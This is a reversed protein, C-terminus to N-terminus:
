ISLGLDNRKLANMSLIDITIALWAM